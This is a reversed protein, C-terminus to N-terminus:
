LPRLLQGLLKGRGIEGIEEVWAWGCVQVGGGVRRRDM